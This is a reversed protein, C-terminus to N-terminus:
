NLLRTIKVDISDMSDYNNDEEEDNKLNISHYFDYYVNLNEVLYVIVEKLNTFEIIELTSDHTKFACYIIDESVSELIFMAFEEEANSDYLHIREIKGMLMLKDIGEYNNLYNRDEFDHCKIDTIFDDIISMLNYIQFENKPSIINNKSEINERVQKRKSKINFKLREKVEKTLPEYEDVMFEFVFTYARFLDFSEINNKMEKITLKERDKRWKRLDSNFEQELAINGNDFIIKKTELYRKHGKNMLVLLEEGKLKTAKKIEIFLGRLPQSSQLLEEM